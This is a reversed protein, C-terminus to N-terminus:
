STCSSYARTIDYPQAGTPFPRCLVAVPAHATMGLPLCRAQAVLAAVLLHAEASAGLRTLAAESRAPPTRSGSHALLAGWDPPGLLASLPAFLDDLHAVPLGHQALVRWCRLAEAQRWPARLESRLAPCDKGPLATLGAHNWYSCEVNVTSAPSANPRTLCKSSLSPAGYGRLTLVPPRFGSAHRVQLRACHAATSPEAPMADCTVIIRELHSPLGSRRLGSEGLHGQWAESTQAPIFSSPWEGSHLCLRRQFLFQPAGAGKRAQFFGYSAPLLCDCCPMLSMCARSVLQAGAAHLAQAARPGAQCSRRLLELARERVAPPELTGEGACGPQGSSAADSSLLRFVAPVLGPCAVIDGAADAGAVAAALLVDLLPAVVAPAAGPALQYAARDLVQVVCKAQRSMRAALRGTSRVRQLLRQICLLLFSIVM